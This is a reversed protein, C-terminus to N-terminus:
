RIVNLRGMCDIVPGNVVVFIINNSFPLSKLVLTRQRSM